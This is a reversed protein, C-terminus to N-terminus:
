KIKRSKNKTALSSNTSFNNPLLKGNFSVSSSFKGLEHCRFAFMFFALTLGALKAVFFSENWLPSRRDLGKWDLRLYYLYLM